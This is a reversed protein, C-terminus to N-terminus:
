KEPPKPGNAVKPVFALQDLDCSFKALDVNAEKAAAACDAEMQAQLQKVTSTAQEFQRQLDAMQIQVQQIARQAKLLKIQTDPSLPKHGQAALTVTALLLAALVRTTTSTM